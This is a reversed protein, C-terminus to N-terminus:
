SATGIQVIPPTPPKGVVRPRGAGREFLRARCASPSIERERRPKSSSGDFPRWLVDRGPLEKGHDLEVLAL